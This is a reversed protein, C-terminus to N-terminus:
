EHDYTHGYHVPLTWRCPVPLVRLCPSVLQMRRDAVSHQEDQGAPVGSAEMHATGLGRPEDPFGGLDVPRAHPTRASPATACVTQEAQPPVRQGAAVFAPRPQRADELRHLADAGGVLAVPDRDHEPQTPESSRRCDATAGGTAAGRPWREDETRAASRQSTAASECLAPASHRRCQGSPAPLNSFQSHRSQNM